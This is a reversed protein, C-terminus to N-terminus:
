SRKRLIVLDNLNDVVGEQVDLVDFYDAWNKKVYAPVHFGAGYSPGVSDDNDLYESYRYGDRMLDDLTFTLAWNHTGRRYGHPGITTLLALGGPVLVRQMELLWPIQLHPALHTWISVSYVVDFQGSDYRLPPAYGNVASRVTPFTRQLYDIATSDVDSAHLEVPDRAFCRLVRGVGCGFDLVRLPRDSHGYHQDIAARIPRYCNEGAEVFRGIGQSGVRRRNVSPPITDIDTHFLRYISIRLPDTSDYVKTKAALFKAMLGWHPNLKQILDM